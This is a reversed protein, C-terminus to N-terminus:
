FPVFAGVSHHKQLKDHRTSFGSVIDLAVPEPVLVREHRLAVRLCCAEVCAARGGLLEAEVDSSPTVSSCSSQGTVRQAGTECDCSSGDRHRVGPGQKSLRQRPWCIFPAAM